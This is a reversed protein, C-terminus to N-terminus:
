HTSIVRAFADISPIAGDNVLNNLEKAVEAEKEKDGGLLTRLWHAEGANRTDLFENYKSSIDKL